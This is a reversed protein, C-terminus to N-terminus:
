QTVLSLDELLQATDFGAMTRGANDLADDSLLIYCEDVCEDWWRRTAGQRFAWTIFALDADGAALAGVNLAHGGEVRASPPPADWVEQDWINDYITAGVYLGGGLWLAARVMAHHKPNVEAFARIKHGALGTSRLYKLADLCYAGRDTSPDGPVYGSIASYMRVVEEDPITVEDGVSSTWVQIMHSLAACTCDGIRDNAAMGWNSAGRTLWDQSSPIVPLAPPLYKALQLTRNQIDFKKPLKGLPKRNM